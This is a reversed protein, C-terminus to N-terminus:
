VVKDDIRRNMKADSKRRNRLVIVDDVVRKDGKQMLWDAVTTESSPLSEKNRLESHLSQLLDDSTLAWLRLEEPMSLGRAIALDKSNEVVDSLFKGSIMQSLTIIESDEEGGDKRFNVELLENDRSKAFISAVLLRVVEETTSGAIPIGRLQKHLVASAKEPTDPPQIRVQRDFRRGVALDMLDLRNTAAILNVGQMQRVGDVLTSFQTSVAGNINTSLGASRTLFFSECDDFFVTSTAGTLQYLKQAAAFIERLFRETDGLWKSYLETGGVAFFNGKAHKLIAERHMDFQRRAIAKAIMTKGNGPLGMLIVSFTKKHKLTEYGEAARYPNELSSVLRALEEDMGGIDDFTTDPMEALLFRSGVGLSSTGAGGQAFSHVIVSEKLLVSADPELSDVPVNQGVLVVRKEGRSDEVLASHGGSMMEAIKVQTGIHDVEDVILQIARTKGNLMVSTGCALAEVRASPHIGVRYQHGDLLVDATGDEPNLRAVVAYDHSPTMLALLEEQLAETKANLEELTTTAEGLSAKIADRESSISVIFTDQKAIHARLKGLLAERDAVQTALRALMLKVFQAREERTMNDENPM